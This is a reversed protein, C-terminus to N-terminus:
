LRRLMRILQPLLARSSLELVAEVAKTFRDEVKIMKAIVGLVGPIEAKLVARVGAQYGM